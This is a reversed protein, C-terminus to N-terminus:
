SPSWRWRGPSPSASSSAAPSSPRTPRRSTPWASRSSCSSRGDGHGGEQEVGKVQVPAEIVNELATKHPFLNFRQFCWASRAASPPSRSTPSGTCRARGRDDYGMLDGDVWIRGGDITELQNICRLFTTKGSGSPGLLCVVEGRHVDMDIGKLVETGHFARPSTSRTSSPSTGEDTRRRHTPESMLPGGAIEASSAAADEQPMAASAAATTAARPLVARGDPHSCVILYWLTAAVFAPCSRSAHPQRDRQTQYFLETSSRSRRRAALHGQGHRDDRQRDAPVIVRMAQPLVIRRMTKGRSMGLAQAAEAQGRDVSLIGARAIEAMYAAESLGLGIIGVWCAHELAPQVDLTFFTLDSTSGSSAAIQQGFPVGIDLRPYLFGIGSGLM